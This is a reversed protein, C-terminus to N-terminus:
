REQEADPVSPSCQNESIEASRFATLFFRRGPRLTLGATGHNASFSLREDDDSGARGIGGNELLFKRLGSLDDVNILDVGAARLERWVAPREPTAWFRILRGHKHAKAVLVRLKERQDNPMPGEGRWRFLWTWNDSLWPMVDAPENSDIDTLRGDLGAYRVPDALLQERPEDGSLVVRLARNTVKGHKVATIIDAYEALVKRLVPYTASPASKLDLMLFVQPGDRYVRGGNRQIRQRLPELYLAQLTRDAHLHRAEHGVLLEGHVEFTDAEISCFGNEMAEALPRQHMEDNHAHANVLPVLVHKTEAAAVSRLTLVAVGVLIAVNFRLMPYAQRTQHQVHRPLSAFLRRFQRTTYSKM